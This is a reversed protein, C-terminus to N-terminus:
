IAHSLPVSENVPFTNLNNKSENLFILNIKKLQKLFTLIKKNFYVFV